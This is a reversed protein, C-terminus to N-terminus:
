EVRDDLRKYLEKHITKQMSAIAESHIVYAIAQTYDIFAVTSGYILEGAGHTFSGEGPIVKWLCGMGRKYPKKKMTSSTIAIQQISKKDRTPRYDDPVFAETDTEPACAIYRYFVGERKLSHVVDSFLTKIEEEGRLIQFTPHHTPSTTILSQVTENLAEETTRLLQKFANPNGKQYGRRKGIPTELVLGAQSLSAISQYVSQRHLNALNALAAITQPTDTLVAYVKADDKKMGARVFLEPLPLAHKM